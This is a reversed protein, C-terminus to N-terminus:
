SVAAVGRAPPEAQLRGAALDHEGAIDKSALAAGFPVGAVIDTGALIVRQEREDISLNLECRFSFAAGVHGNYRHRLSRGLLVTSM